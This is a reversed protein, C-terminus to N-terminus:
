RYLESLEIKVIESSSKQTEFGSRSFFGYTHCNLGTAKVQEIETAIMADSVSNKRFKAEYFAYGNREWTVIDFEGNRREKPLDYWYKGIREFPPEIRGARNQRILYQRCVDEFRGPVYENEFDAAIYRDFFAQPEMVNM